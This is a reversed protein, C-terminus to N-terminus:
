LKARISNRYERATMNQVRKFLRSFYNEDYIGVKEAIEQIQLDTAALLVLSSQVRKQNIYDTLTKKTEKKFQASLYSSNVMVKEAIHKLTLPEALNFDIYNITNQIVQSYGRLSHNQVLLCYKRIMDHYIKILENNNGSSEIRRAFSESVSDIHAPHVNAKQVSKRYLTNLVVMQNKSERLRDTTRPQARNRRFSNNSMMVKTFDGQEIAELMGEENRYREEIADLSLKSEYEIKLDTENHAEYLNIGTRDIQYDNGYFVYQMLTFIMSELTENSAIAPIKYYYEKLESTHYISLQNREIIASVERDDTDLIYPGILCFAASDIGAISLPLKFIIYHVEFQDTVMYVKNEKCSYELQEIIRSYDYGEFLQKRFGSDFNQINEYPAKLMHVEIGQANMMDKILQVLNIEM